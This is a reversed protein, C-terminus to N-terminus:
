KQTVAEITADIWKKGFDRTFSEQNALYHTVATGQVWKARKQFTAAFSFNSEEAIKEM